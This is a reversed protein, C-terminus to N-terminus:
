VKKKGPPAGLGLAELLKCADDLDLNLRPDIATGLLACILALESHADYRFSYRHGGKVFEVVRSGPKKISTPTGSIRNLSAM